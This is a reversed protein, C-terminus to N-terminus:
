DGIIIPRCYALLDDESFVKAVVEPGISTADGLLVGIVPKM